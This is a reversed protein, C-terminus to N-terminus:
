AFAPFNEAYYTYYNNIIKGQQTVETEKETSESYSYDENFCPQDMREFSIVEEKRKLAYYALLFLILVTSLLMMIPIIINTCNLIVAGLGVLVAATLGFSIM